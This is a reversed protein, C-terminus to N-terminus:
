PHNATPPNALLVRVAEIAGELIMQRVEEIRLDTSLFDKGRQILVSEPDDKRPLSLAYYQGRHVVDCRVDYLFNVAEEAALNQRTYPKEFANSLRLRAKNTCFKAFFDQVFKRSRGERDFKAVTKAILEAAILYFLIQFAPRGMAVADIRDALWIMRATQHFVLLPPNNAPSADKIRLYFEEATQRDPFCPSYIEIFDIDAIHVKAPNNQM